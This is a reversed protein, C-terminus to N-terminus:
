CNPATIVFTLRKGSSKGLAHAFEGLADRRQLNPERRQLNPEGGQGSFEVQEFFLDHRNWFASLRFSAGRERSGLFLLQSWAEIGFSVWPM